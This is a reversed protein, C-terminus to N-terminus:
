LKGSWSHLRASRGSSVLLHKTKIMVMCDGDINGYNDNETHDDDIVDDDDDDKIDVMDFLM